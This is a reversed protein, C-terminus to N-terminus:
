PNRTKELEKGIDRYQRETFGLVGEETNLFNVIVAKSVDHLMLLNKMKQKLVM